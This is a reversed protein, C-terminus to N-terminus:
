GWFFGMSFKQAKFIEMLPLLLILSPIFIIEIESVKWRQLPLVVRNELLWAIFVTSSFDISHISAKNSVGRSVKYVIIYGTKHFLHLANFISVVAFGPRLVVRGSYTSVVVM